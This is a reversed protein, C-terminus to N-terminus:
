AGTPLRFRLLLGGPAGLLHPPGTEAPQYTPPFLEMMSKLATAAATDESVLKGDVATVHAERAPARAAREPGERPFGFVDITHLNAVRLLLGMVRLDVEGATLSAYAHPTLRIRNDAVVQRGLRQRAALARAENGNKLVHRVQSGDYFLAAPESRALLQQLAERDTEGTSPPLVLLDVPHSTAAAYSRFELKGLASGIEKQTAAPLAVETGSATHAKLWLRAAPSLSTSSAPQAAPAKASVTSPPSESGNSLLAILGGVAVLAVLVAIVIYPTRRNVDRRQLKRLRQQSLRKLNRLRQLRQPKRNLVTPRRATSPPLSTRATTREERKHRAADPPVTPPTEALSPIPSLPIVLTPSASTTAPSQEVAEDVDDGPDTAPDEPPKTEADEAAKGLSEPSNAKEDVDSDSKAAVDAEVEGAPVKKALPLLGLVNFQGLAFKPRSTDAGESDPRDRLDIVHDDSSGGSRTQADSSDDQQQQSGSGM